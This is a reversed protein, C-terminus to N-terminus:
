IVKILFVILALKNLIESLRSEFKSLTFFNNYRIRGARGMKLRLGNNEILIQLKDALAVADNKDIIFGTEGDYVIDPIGGEFTSVIPLSFLMAELNVLGFTENLSPFVFIDAKSYAIAKEHGYKRGAYRVYGGLDLESVKINFDEATIDSEGGIFTCRYSIKRERLIKCAELLVYVGKARMLNSLFLIEIKQKANRSEMAPFSNSIDLIGNACIHIEDRSVYKEVDFYLRQSLLIVESKSFVLRYFVNYIWVDQKLCVGQNHMHLVVKKGFIKAMIVVIADKFFGLGTANIAVYTLDPRFTVIAKLTKILIGIYFWIKKLPIRGIEGLTESTGLNIYATQFNSNIIASEMISKGVVASGHVPPPIHLIFLIKRKM